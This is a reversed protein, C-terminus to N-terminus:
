RHAGYDVRGKESLTIVLAEKAGGAALVPQRRQITRERFIATKTATGADDDYNELSLILPLDPDGAFARANAVQSIPGFQGVFYDYDQNLRFRAAEVEPDPRNEVQTRLCDRAADRVYILRRIRRAMQPPLDMLLRLEGGDRVAIGGGGADTLTYANPKVGPPCPITQRMAAAQTETLPKYLAAPLARVAIELAKGLDRGDGTLRVEDRGYMGREVRELKGLMMEPHAHYYENLFIPNEDAGLPRSERWSQGAPKEGLARKRLFVIDTTVETGANKKFATNPLRIAGVFDCSKAVAERLHPYQKDLTGRSTIFVVLGGPRVREAAAVFFYDHIHFKRPNLKTDYPAYDGFPVNSVALDFRNTPLTANEFAQSRIDADPYLAKALRATLPDIEIGTLESRAAMTEPMVGFFHGLGCAPELIRGHQFGLRDLAAYMARIVTPSTYHANLVTARASSLEDPELFKALEEQEATWQPADAASAFVQPIGGWGVYKAIVAREEPTATRAEAQIERLTRIAAINGRYKQKAGGEGLRDADTIRYNNANRPAVGAGAEGAPAPHIEGEGAGM